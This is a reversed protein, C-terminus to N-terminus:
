RNLVGKEELLNLFEKIDQAAVEPTVDYEELLAKLLAEETTERGLMKFLFSGVENMEVMGHYRSADRGVAVAVYKEGVPASAFKYRLIM